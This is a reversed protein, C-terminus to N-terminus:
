LGGCPYKERRPERPTNENKDDSDEAESDSIEPMPIWDSDDSVSADEVTAKVLCENVSDYCPDNTIVLNQKQESVSSVNYCDISM